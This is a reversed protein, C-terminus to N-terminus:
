SHMNFNNKLMNLKHFQIFAHTIYTEFACGEKM